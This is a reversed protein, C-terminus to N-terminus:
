AHVFRFHHDPSIIGAGERYKYLDKKWRTDSGNVWLWTVDLMEEEGLEQPSCFIEGDAFWSEMCKPPLFRTARLRPFPASPPTLPVYPRHGPDRSPRNDLPRAPPSPFLTSLLLESSPSPTAVAAQQTRALPNPMTSVRHPLAYRHVTWVAALWIILTSVARLYPHSVPISLPNLLLTRSAYSRWPRKSNTQSSFMPGDHSGISLM